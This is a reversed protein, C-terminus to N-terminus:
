VPDALRDGDPGARRRRRQCPLDRAPRRGARPRPAQGLRRGRRLRGPDGPLRDARGRGRHLRRPRRAARGRGAPARGDARRGRDPWRGRRQDPRPLRRVAPRGADGAGDPGPHVRHHVAGIARDLRGRIPRRVAPRRGRQGQGRADDSSRSRRRRVDPPRLPAGAGPGRAAGRPRPRLRRPAGGGARGAAGPDGGAARRGRALAPDVAGAGGPGAPLVPLRHHPRRPGPAAVRERRLPAAGEGLAPDDGRIPRHPDPAG